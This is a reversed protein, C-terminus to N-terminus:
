QTAEQLEHVDAIQSGPFEALVTKVAPHEALEAIEADREALARKGAILDRFDDGYQVLLAFTKRIQAVEARNQDRGIDDLYGKRYSVEYLKLRDNLIRELKEQMQFLTLRQPTM